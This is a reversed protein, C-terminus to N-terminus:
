FLVRAGIQVRRPSQASLVQGFTPSGLFNDPQDFNTRNFLNFAELRLDVRARSVRVQKVLAANVNQYDPGTVINRGADGFTGPAPYAFATTDFWREPEPSDIEPSRVLNPRDNAGFGLSSRGTNSNDFEPVLAVTFPRGTQLTVV